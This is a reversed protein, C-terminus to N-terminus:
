TSDVFVMGSFAVGGGGGRTAVGGVGQSSLPESM